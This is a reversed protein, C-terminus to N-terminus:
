SDLFELIRKNVFEPQETAVGHGCHTVFEAQVYPMLQKAREIVSPGDYIVEQDGVLLLAPNKISKLEEDTFVPPMVSLKNRGQTMSAKFQYQFANDHLNGEATMWKLMGNARSQFPLLMTSFAQIWFMLSLKKFVAAPALMVIKDVLEPYECAFNITLFGGYSLGVLHPKEIGLGELVERLWDALDKRNEPQASLRTKGWDGLTDLAYTRYIAGLEGANAYWMTASAAAGHLLVVPKGDEKGSIIVHTETNKTPITKTEYPIPWLKLTEDYAALYESEKQANKFISIMDAM